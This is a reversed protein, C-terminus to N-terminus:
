DVATGRDISEEIKKKATELEAAIPDAQSLIISFAYSMRQIERMAERIETFNSAEGIKQKAYEVLRSDVFSDIQKWADLMEDVSPIDFEEM